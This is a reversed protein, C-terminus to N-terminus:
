GHWEIRPYPTEEVRQSGHIWRARDRERDLHPARAKRVEQAKKTRSLLDRRDVLELQWPGFPRKGHADIGRRASVDALPQRPHDVKMTAAEDGASELGV